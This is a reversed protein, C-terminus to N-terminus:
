RWGGMMGPGMQGGWGQGPGTTGVPGNPTSWGNMMSPGMQGSWGQGPGTTSGTWTSTPWPRTTGTGGPWTPWTGTDRIIPSLPNGSLGLALVLALAIVGIIVVTKTTM